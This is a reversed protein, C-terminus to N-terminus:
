TRTVPVKSPTSAATGTPIRVELIGDSYTARVDDEHVSSPLRLVRRFSGYRFESRYGPKGKEGETSEERREGAITLLGDGVTIEVDKDPDLGPLEARVVVDHGDVFEEIRMPMTEELTLDLGLSRLPWASLLLDQLSPRDFKELTTM